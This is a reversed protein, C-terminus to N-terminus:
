RGGGVRGIPKSEVAIGITDGCSSNM